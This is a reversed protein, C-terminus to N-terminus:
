SDVKEILNGLLWSVICIVFILLVSSLLINLFM